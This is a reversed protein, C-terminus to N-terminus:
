PNERSESWWMSIQRAADEDPSSFGGDFIRLSKEQYPDDGSEFHWGQAFCWQNLQQIFRATQEAEAPTPPQGYSVLWLTIPQHVDDGQDITLEQHIQIM